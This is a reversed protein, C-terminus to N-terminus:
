REASPKAPQQDNKLLTELVIVWGEFGQELQVPDINDRHLMQELYGQSVWYVLQSAVEPSIDTRLTRYLLASPAASAGSQASPYRTLEQRVLAQVFPDPDFAANYSFRYVFPYQQFLTLRSTANRRLVSFLDDRESGQARSLADAELISDTALRFLRLYLNEKTSFYKFLVSKSVGAADAIDQMSAKQYGHKAFVECAANLINQQKEQQLREFAMDREANRETFSWVHGFRDCFLYLVQNLKQLSAMQTPLLFCGPLYGPQWAFDM